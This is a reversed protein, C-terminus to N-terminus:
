RGYSWGAPSPPPPALALWAGKGCMPAPGPAGLAPPPPLRQEPAARRRTRGERGAEAPAGRGRGVAVKWSSGPTRWQSLRGPLTQLHPAGSSPTLHPPPFDDLTASPSSARSSRPPSHLTTCPYPMRHTRRLGPFPAEPSELVKRVRAPSRVQARPGGARTRPMALGGWAGCVAPPKSADGACGPWPAATHAAAPGRAGPGAPM